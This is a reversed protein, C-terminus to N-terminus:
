IIFGADCILRSKSIINSYAVNVPALGTAVHKSSSTCVSM